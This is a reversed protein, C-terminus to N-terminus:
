DLRDFRWSDGRVADGNGELFADVERTSLDPNMEGVERPSLERGTVTGFWFGSKFARAQNREETTRENM